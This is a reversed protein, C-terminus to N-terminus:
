QKLVNYTGGGAPAFGGDAALFPERRGLQTVTLAASVGGEGYVTVVAGRDCGENPGASLSLSGRGQGESPTVTLWDPITAM